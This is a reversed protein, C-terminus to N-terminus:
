QRDYIAVHKGSDNTMTHTMTKGDASVSSTIVAVTKGKEKMTIKRLGDSTFECIETSEASLGDGEVHREQGDYIRTIEYHTTKGSKQVGDIITRYTNPGAQELKMTQSVLNPSPDPSTKLNLKWTGAIDAAM